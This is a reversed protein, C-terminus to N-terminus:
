FIVIGNVVNFSYGNYMCLGTYNWDVQGCTVYFWANGYMVLGTYVVNLQGDSVYYWVGLYNTLSNYETDLVGNTVYYWVGYYNTLGTYSIDLMGNNVYFWIGNYNTLGTYNWNLIGNEVYFWNDIYWTLGTYNWNLIGNNVYFWTDVYYVLGTYEELLRGGYVYYWDNDVYVLTSVNFDIEGNVVYWKSDNVSSFGTFSYDIENNKYLFWRGQSEDYMLGEKKIIDEEDKELVIVASKTPNYVAGSGAPAKDSLKLFDGMNITGDDNRTIECQELSVFWSSSASAGSENKSASGNWLYNSNNKYQSQDQNGSPKISDAVSYGKTCKSDKYSLVGEVTYNSNKNSATYLALNGNENNYSTCNYIENDPCSNSDIGRAKNNFSFSNILTHNGYLNEGGLKFGNGNGANTGDELYGNNYAICNQITVKGISGTEVKAYLDWGDDANNYAICGDFVNGVGATIKAAFGDADEYGMDANGYSTCNLILNYSPWRDFEDHSNYRAIQLGTNGNHYTNVNDVVIHNGAVTIGAASNASNIVDFGYVYWYDGGFVVASIKRGLDIVPRQVADPDAVMRIPEDKTGCISRRIILQETLKYEGELLVITQGPRVNKVAEYISTPNARTGDGNGDGDSAVYINKRDAYKEPMAVTMKKVVPDTSTLKSYEDLKINKDVNYNINIDTRLGTLKIDIYYLRDGTVSMNDVVVNGGASVSITGDLNPIVEFQYNETNCSYASAVSFSPKIYNIPREEAAEDEAPLIKTLEIDSFTARANRSAFFGAYIYKDDVVNLMDRDYYKLTRILSGDQDYYSIFYGTNNRKIEIIFDTLEAITTEMEATSNGIINYSGVPYGNNPAYSDLTKTISSFENQITTTDTANLKDLNQSTVGKKEIVGVGCKMTYNTSGSNVTKTSSNYGYGIKTVGAMYSNNWFATSKGNPGLRDTALLGFGEQGNSFTWKDVHVNAKLTFNYAVPIKTYYFSLGDTSAPVIKGHGNESYVTVSGDSNKTYGNDGNGTGTGYRTFEWTEGAAFVKGENLVM